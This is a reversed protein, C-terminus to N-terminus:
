GAVGPGLCYGGPGYPCYGGYVCGTGDGDCDRCSLSRSVFETSAERLFRRGVHFALSEGDRARGVEGVRGATSGLLGTRFGMAGTCASCDRADSTVCCFDVSFTAAPGRSGGGLGTAAVFFCVRRFRPALAADDVTALEM